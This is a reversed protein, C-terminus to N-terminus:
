PRGNSTSQSSNEMASKLIKLKAVTKSLGELADRVPQEPVHQMGLRVSVLLAALRSATEEFDAINDVFYRMNQPTIFELSLIADLTEPMGSQAAAKIMSLGPRCAMAFEVTEQSYTKIEPEIEGHAQPAILGAIKVGRDLGPRRVAEAMVSEADDQSMGMSVLMERAEFDHVSDHVSGSFPENITFLAGDSAVSVTGADYSSLKELDEERETVDVRVRLPVWEAGGPMYYADGDGFAAESTPDIVRMREFGQVGDVPSLAYSKGTVPDTVRFVKLQKQGGDIKVTSSGGMKLPVTSVPTGHVYNVFVGVEGNAPHSSPIRHKGSLKVGFMEGALAYRGDFTVLLKRPLERGDFHFMAPVVFGIVTDRGARVAYVGDGTVPRAQGAARAPSWTARQLGDHQMFVHGSDLRSMVDAYKDGFLAKLEDKDTAQEPGGSFKIFLRGTPGRFVQVVNPGIVERPRIGVSDPGRRVMLEVLQLNNGSGQLMHPNTAMLQRFNAVDNADLLAHKLLAEVHGASKKLEQRVVQKIQQKADQEQRKTLGLSKIVPVSMAGATSGILARKMASRGAGALRAKVGGPTDLAGTLAGSIAGTTGFLAARDKMKEATTAEAAKVMAEPLWVSSIKTGNYPGAFPSAQGSYELPTADGTVDGVYPNGGVAQSKAGEVEGVRPNHTLGRITDPDLFHYRGQYYFVDMPALESDAGPRPRSIIVPIAIESGLIVSGVAAGKTADMRRLDIDATDLPLYSHQSKLYRIIEAQWLRPNSPMKYGATKELNQASFYLPQTHM